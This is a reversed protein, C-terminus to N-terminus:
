NAAKVLPQLDGHDTEGGQEGEGGEGGRGEGVRGGLARGRAGHTRRHRAARVAGLRHLGVHLRERALDAAELRPDARELARLGGGGVEGLDLPAEVVQLRGERTEVQLRHLGLEDLDVTAQVGELRPHGGELAGHAVDHEFQLLDTRADRGELGGIGHGHRTDDGEGRGHAGGAEGRVAVVDHVAVVHDEVRAGRGAAREVERDAHEHPGLLDRHVETGRDRGAQGEVFSVTPAQDSADASRQPRGLAHLEPEETAHVEEVVRVQLRGVPHGVGLAARPSPQDAALEGVDEEPAIRPLLESETARAADEGTALDLRPEAALELHPELKWETVETALHFGHASHM